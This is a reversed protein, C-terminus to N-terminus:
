GRFYKNFLQRLRKELIAKRETEFIREASEFYHKGKVWQQKLVMGTSAGPEYIFRDGCWTGPVFRVAVGRLNSWHGDNVFAAYKVNTGVELTLKNANLVWVGEGSGQHFSSLLLRTDMVRLRIIEDEVLRLFEAGLGELLLILERRLEGSALKDINKCFKRFERDDFKINSKSM